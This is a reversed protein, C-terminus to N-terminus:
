SGPYVPAQVEGIKRVSLKAPFEHGISTHSLEPGRSCYGGARHGQGLRPAERTRLQSTRLHPNHISRPYRPETLPLPGRPSPLPSVLAPAVSHPCCCGCCCTHSPWPGQLQAGQEPPSKYSHLPHPTATPTCCATNAKGRLARWVQEAEEWCSM